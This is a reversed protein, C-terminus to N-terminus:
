ASRLARINQPIVKSFQKTQFVGKWEETKWQEVQLLELEQSHFFYKLSSFAYKM